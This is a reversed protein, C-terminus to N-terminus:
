RIPLHWNPLGLLRSWTKENTTVQKNGFATSTEEVNQDRSDQKYLYDGNFDIGLRGIKGNYYTSVTHNPGSPRSLRNVDDIHGDGEPSSSIDSSSYIDSKSYPLLIVNYEIGLSNSDNIQKNIFGAM